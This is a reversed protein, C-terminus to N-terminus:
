KKCSYQKQRYETYSDTIQYNPYAPSVASGVRSIYAGYANWGISDLREEALERNDEEYKAWGM